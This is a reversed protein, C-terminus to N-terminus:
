QTLTELLEKETMNNERGLANGDEIKYIGFGGSVLEQHKGDFAETLIVVVKDGEKFEPVDTIMKNGNIEGGFVKFTYLDKYQNDKSKVSKETSLEYVTYPETVAINKSDADLFNGETDRYELIATKSVITGKVIDQSLDRIEELDTTLYLDHVLTYGGDNITKENYTEANDTTISIIGVSAISIAVLAILLFKSKQNM